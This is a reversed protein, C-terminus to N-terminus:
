SPTASLERVRASWIELRARFRAAQAEVVPVSTMEAERRTRASGSAILDQIREMVGEEMRLIEQYADRWQLAQVLSGSRPDAEGEMGQNVDGGRDAAQVDARRPDKLTM